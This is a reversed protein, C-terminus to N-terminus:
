YVRENDGERGRPVKEEDSRGLGRRAWGGVMQVRGMMRSFGQKTSAASWKRVRFVYYFVVAMAINFVVYAWVIGFNRWRTTWSIAVEALFQDSTRLPCYQCQTTAAPNMLQGAATTLYSSLYQGCTQGAPPNFVSIENSACTVARGHLGTAAIGDVLYTLPSVRYM